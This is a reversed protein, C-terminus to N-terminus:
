CKGAGELVELGENRCGIIRRFVERVQRQLPDLGNRLDESVSALEERREELAMKTEETLPFPHDVLDAMDSACREIRCIEKLLGSSSQHNRKKSEAVIREHLSILKVGWALNRPFSFQLYVGRDQCPIAAVLSWLVFVLVCSVTFLSLAIGNTAVIENERPPVLNNAIAQLQKSASWNSSVSWSLSRSHRSAQQQPDKSKNNRGFSRYGRSLVSDSQKEDVMALTLDMLAKRARLIQGKSVEGHPSGLASLVIDVHKEWVRMREIGDRTANCIDLAKVSRDFFEGVLHNLPPRLIQSKNKMLILRFEEQFFIYSDLLKTIWEISLLEDSSVISLEHLHDTVHKQFSELELVYGERTTGEVKDRTSSFISRAISFLSSPERNNTSTSPM